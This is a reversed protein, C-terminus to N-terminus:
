SSSGGRGTSGFGGRSSGSSEGHGGSSYAGGSSSGRGGSVFSSRPGGARANAERAGDESPVTAPSEVGPVPTWLGDHYYGRGAEYHNFVYPYFRRSGAYYWGAGGLYYNNPYATFANVAPAEGADAEDCSRVILVFVTAVGLGCLALAIKDSKYM